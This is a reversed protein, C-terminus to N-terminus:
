RYNPDRQRYDELTSADYDCVQLVELIHNAVKQTDGAELWSRLAERIHESYDELVNELEHVLFFRASDWVPSDTPAQTYDFLAEIGDAPAGSADHLASAAHLFVNRTDVVPLRSRGELVEELFTNAMSAYDRVAIPPFDDVLSRGPKKTYTPTKPATTDTVLVYRGGEAQSREVLERVLQEEGYETIGDQTVVHLLPFTVEGAEVADPDVHEYEVPSYANDWLDTHVVRDFGLAGFLPLSRLQARAQKDRKALQEDRVVITSAETHTLDVLDTSEVADFREYWIRTDMENATNGSVARGGHQIILEV